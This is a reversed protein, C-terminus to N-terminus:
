STSDSGNGDHEWAVDFSEPAPQNLLETAAGADVRKVQMRIGGVTNAFYNHATNEDMLFCEMGASELMGKAIEAESPNLFTRITVLDRAQVRNEEPTSGDASKTHSTDVPIDLGRRDIEATLVQIALPTLSAADEALAQLEGDAMGSYVHELRRKEAALDAM